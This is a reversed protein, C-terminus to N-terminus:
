RRDGDVQQGGSDEDAVDVTDGLRWDSREALAPGVAIENPGVPMRGETVTLSPSGLVPDM